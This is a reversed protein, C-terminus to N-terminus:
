NVIIKKSITNEQSQIVLFYMGSSVSTLDLTSANNAFLLVVDGHLNVLTISYNSTGTVKVIAQDSVPNPYVQATVSEGQSDVGTIVPLACNEDALKIYDIEITGTFAANVTAGFEDTLTWQSNWGPNVGFYLQSIQTQDLNCACGWEDTMNDAFDITYNKWATTLQVVNSAASTWNGGALGSNSAINGSVDRFAPTIIVNSSAKARIWVKHSKVNTFDLTKKLNIIFNDYQATATGVIKFNGNDESTSMSPSSVLSTYNMAGDFQMNACDQACDTNGSNGAVCYGCEDTYAIGGWDGNCDTVCATKGTNGGVCISCNDLTALGDKDGHCDVTCDNITIGTTGGSCVKCNDVAATGGAVGACDTGCSGIIASVKSAIAPTNEMFAKITNAMTIHTVTTPHTWDGGFDKETVFANRFDIFYIDDGAAKRDAVMQIIADNGPKWGRVDLIPSVVFFTTNPYKAYVLDIFENYRKVYDTANLLGQNFNNDSWDNTGLLCFFFDAKWPDTSFDYKTNWGAKAWGPYYSNFEWEDSAKAEPLSNNLNIYMGQGSHSAVRYDADMMRSVVPAYSRYSDQEWGTSVWTGAGDNWTPSPNTNSLGCTISNGVFEYKLCPRTSPATIDGETITFGNFTLDAGNAENRRSIMIEHEGASLGTIDIQIVADVYVPTGGDITYVVNVLNSGNYFTNTFSASIATGTFKAKLYLSPWTCVPNTGRWDWRGFYQINTDTPAVTTASAFQTVILLLMLTIIKPLRNRNKMYNHTKTSSYIDAVDVL